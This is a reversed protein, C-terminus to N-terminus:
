MMPPFCDDTGIACCLYEGDVDALEEGACCGDADPANGDACTEQTETEEFVQQTVYQHTAPEIEQEEVITPRVIQADAMVDVGMDEELMEDIEQVVTASDTEYEEDAVFMRENQSVGYAPKSALIEEETMIKKAPQADEETLFPSVPEIVAVTPEPVVTAPEEVVPTVPVPEPEVAVELQVPEPEVVPVPEPVVDPIVVPEPEAVPAPEPETVVVEEEATPAVEEVTVEAVVPEEIVSEEVATAVEAVPEEAVVAQEQQTKAGLEPVSKNTTNQYFWLTFVSLVILIILLVYYLMTPKRPTITADAVPAPPLADGDGGSIPSVPRMGSDIPAPEIDDLPAPAPLPEVAAQPAAPVDYDVNEAAYAQPAAPVEVPAVQPIEIPAISPMLESDIQVQPESVSTITDLVPMVPEVDQQSELVPPQFSVPMVDGDDDDEEEYDTQSEQVIPTDAVPEFVVPEVATQPAPMPLLDDETDIAPVSPVTSQTSNTNFEVPKFAIEDDLIKPDTDFLPKVEEDAMKEAKPESKDNNNIINIQPAFVIGQPEDPKNEVVQPIAVKPQAVPLAVDDADLITLINNAVDIEELAADLRRQARQLRKKARSLKDTAADIQTETRLIKAASQKTPERGIDRRQAALKARLTKIRGQLESITDKTKDVTERARDATLEAAGLREFAARRAADNRFAALNQLAMDLNNGGDSARILDDYQGLGAYEIDLKQYKNDKKPRVTELDLGYDNALIDDWKREGVPNIVLLVNPKVQTETYDLVFVIKGDADYYARLVNGSIDYDAYTLPQYLNERENQM